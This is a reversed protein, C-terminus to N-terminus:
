ENHNGRSQWGTVACQRKIEVRSPMGSKIPMAFKSPMEFRESKGDQIFLMVEIVV